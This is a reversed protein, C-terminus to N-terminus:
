SHNYVNSTVIGHHTWTRNGSTTTWTIYDGPKVDGINKGVITCPLDGLGKTRIEDMRVAIHQENFQIQQNDASGCNKDEHFYDKWDAGRHYEDYGWGSHGDIPDAEPRDCAVGWCAAVYENAVFPTVTAMPKNWNKM